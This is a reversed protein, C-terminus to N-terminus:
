GERGDARPRSLIPWYKYVYCAFAGIWLLGSLVIAAGYASPAALPVVVRTLAAANILVYSAIEPAEAILPRGTHGRATRTVMGLTLGGLAGVTLAHVAISAPLVGLAGLARLALYV